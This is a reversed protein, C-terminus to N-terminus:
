RACRFGVFNNTHSPAFLHVALPGAHQGGISAFAGGRVLRRSRQHDHERRRLV